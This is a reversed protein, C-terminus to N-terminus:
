DLAAKRIKKTTETLVKTYKSIDSVQASALDTELLTSVYIKDASTTEDQPHMKFNGDVGTLAEEYRSLLPRSTQEM